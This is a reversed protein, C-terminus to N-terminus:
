LKNLAEGNELYPDIEMLQFFVMYRHLDSETFKWNEKLNISHQKLTMSYDQYTTGSIFARTVAKASCHM